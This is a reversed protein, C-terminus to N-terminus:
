WFNSACPRNHQQTKLDCSCLTIANLFVSFCSFSNLFRVEDGKYGAFVEDVEDTPPKRLPPADDSTGVDNTSATACLGFRRASQNNPTRIRTKHSRTYASAIYSRVPCKRECQRRVTASVVTNPGSATPRITVLM